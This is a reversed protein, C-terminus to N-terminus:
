LTLVFASTQSGGTHWLAAANQLSFFSLFHFSCLVSSAGTASRLDQYFIFIALEYSLFLFSVCPFTLTLSFLLVNFSIFSFQSFSFLDTRRFTCSTCPLYSCPLFIRALLHCSFLTFSVVLSSFSQDACFSFSHLAQLSSHPSSPCVLPVLHSVAYEWFCLLRLRGFSHQVSRAIVLSICLWFRTKFLNIVLSFLICPHGRPRFYSLPAPAPSIDWHILMSGAREAAMLEIRFIHLPLSWPMWTRRQGGCAGTHVYMYVPM